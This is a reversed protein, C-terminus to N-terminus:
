TRRDAETCPDIRKGSIVEVCLLGCCKEPSEFRPTRFILAPARDQPTLAVDVARFRNKVM